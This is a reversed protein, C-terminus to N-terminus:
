RVDPMRQIWRAIKANETPKLKVVDGNPLWIARIEREWAFKPPKLWNSRPRMEAINLPPLDGYVVCKARADGLHPAHQISLLSMVMRLNTIKFVAMPKGNPNPIDPRDSFCLCYRNAASLVFQVNTLNFNSAGFVPDIMGRLNGAYISSDGSTIDASDIAHTALGEQDDRREGEIDRYGDIDGIKLSGRSVAEVVDSESLDIYKYVINPANKSTKYAYGPPPNDRPFKKIQLRQGLKRTLSSM